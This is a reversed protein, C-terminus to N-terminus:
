LMFFDAPNMHFNVSIGLFDMYPVIQQAAGFYLLKGKGMLMLKDM